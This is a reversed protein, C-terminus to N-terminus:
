SGARSRPNRRGAHGPHRRTAARRAPAAGPAAPSRRPSRRRAAGTRVSPFIATDGVIVADSTDTAGRLLRNWEELKGRKREWGMWVSESPNWRRMRHWLYLRSGGLRENLATVGERAAALIAADGPMERAPADAFDGLIAFHINPDLNGLALVEIHEIMQAVSGVSTFLTPVVVM